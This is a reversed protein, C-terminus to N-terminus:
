PSQPTHPHSHPSSTDVLGGNVAADVVGNLAMTFSQDAGGDPLTEMIAVKVELEANKGEMTELAMEIPNRFVSSQEVCLLRRQTSPFLRQARVYKFEVWLDRFEGDTELQKEKNESAFWVSSNASKKEGAMKRKNYPRRYSFTDVCNNVRWTKLGVPLGLDTVHTSAPLALMEPRTVPALKSIAMFYKEAQDTHEPGVNTKLDLLVVGPYKGKVRASFDIIQELPAGRYVFEQNRIAPPYRLGYYAVRFVSPYFREVNQVSDYWDASRRLLASVKTFNFTATAIQRRLGESLEIAIEWQQGKELMGMAIEYIKERRALGTQAPFSNGSLEVEELLKAAGPGKCDGHCGEAVGLLGLVQQAVSVAEPLSAAPTPGILPPSGPAAPTDCALLKVHLLLAMAAETHHGLLTMEKAMAHAAKIYSDHRKLRELFDMLKTYSYMREDEFEATKPNRSLDSLLGFLESTETLFQTAEPKNLDPDAAFKASLYDRFM